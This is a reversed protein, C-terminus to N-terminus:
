LVDCLVKDKYSGIVFGVLCQKSVSGSTNNDLWKLKYPHPHPKTNLKLENVLDLSVFNPESGGDIILDCVKDKIRCKTQFINERQHNEREGLTAHLSRRVILNYQEEEPMVREREEESDSEETRHEYRVLRGSDSVRYIGEPEDEPVSPWSRLTIVM